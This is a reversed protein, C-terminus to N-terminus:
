RRECPLSLFRRWSTSQLLDSVLRQPMTAVGPCARWFKRLIDRGEVDLSKHMSSLAIGLPVLFPVRKWDWPCYRFLPLYIGITLSEHMSSPWEPIAGAPIIFHVDVIRTFRRMWEPALLNPILVVGKLLNHRKLRAIGLEELAHLAAAPPLNWVWTETTSSLEYSGAQHAAHFWDSPDAINYDPGLWDTLWDRLNPSRELPSQDLPLLTKLARGLSSVHLEGRSLGDIGSEIMRTGAIHYMRLIFNGEVTLLRLETVMQHLKKSSSTGRHYANAATSNDTAMWVEYGVLRGARAETRITDILNRLERWNSSENSDSPCWFGRRLLPKMGIPLIQGGFGEGSADGGGYAVFISGSVPRVIVQVPTPANFFLQLIRVDERLRSVPRIMAPPKSAGVAEPYAEYLEDNQYFNSEDFQEDTNELLGGVKWGDRDRGSRWADDSLHFGKLYPQIFDYCTSMYVLFGKGSRFRTRQLDAGPKAITEDVWKLFAKAKDWKEQSVFVRVIKQDTYAIGGAWAGPRQSIERRKRAADQNGYFQLRSTIQRLASHALQENPGYVRGDDYFTVIGAASLGSENVKRVRPLAPNYHETGPLNLLVEKWRFASTIDDPRGVAMEIARALMRLALYPSSQWGFVLRGWRMYKEVQVGERLLIEQLDDPIEVGCNPQESPHLMYNHFQEGIDFDGGFSGSEIQRLYTGMTALFFTPTYMTANVGNKALDWVVRIDDTGKPVPFRPVTLRCYGPTIYERRILKALKEKDKEIIWEEKLPVQPFRFQPRPQSYHFGRAGDRAEEFWIPPWRWFLLRSGQSWNWWDSQGYRLLCDIVAIRNLENYNTKLWLTSSQYLHRFWIRWLFVRLVQRASEFGPENGGVAWLKVDVQADDGKCAVSVEKTDTPGWVWGFYRICEIESNPVEQTHGVWPARTRGWDLKNSFDKLSKKQGKHNTLDHFKTVLSMIFEIYFRMPVVRGSDWSWIEELLPEWDHRLDILQCREKTTFPRQINKGFYVSFTDVWQPSGEFPWPYPKADGRSPYWCDTRGDISTRWACLRVAPELFRDLPRRPYKFSETSIEKPLGSWGIGVRASTLGGLSTHRFTHWHYSPGLHQRVQEQLISVPPTSIFHIGEMNMFKELAQRSFLDFASLHICNITIKDKRKEVDGNILTRIRKGFDPHKQLGLLQKEAKEGVPLCFVTLIGIQLWSLAWMWGDVSVILVTLSEELFTLDEWYDYRENGPSDSNVEIDIPHSEM